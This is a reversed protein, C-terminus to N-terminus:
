GHHTEFLDRELSPRELETPSSFDMTKPHLLQSSGGGGLLQHGRKTKKPSYKKYIPIKMSTHNMNNTYQYKCSSIYIYRCIHTYVHIHTNIVKYLLDILRAAEDDEGNGHSKGLFGPEPLTSFSILSGAPADSGTAGPPGLKRSFFRCTVGKCDGRLIRNLRTVVLYSM